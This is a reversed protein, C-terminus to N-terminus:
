APLRQAAGDGEGLLAGLHSPVIKLCDIGIRPCTSGLVGRRGHARESSILHLCGGLCLSAFCWRTAWIRPSPPCVPM